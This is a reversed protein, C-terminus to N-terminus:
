IIFAHHRSSNLRKHLGICYYECLKKCLPKRQNENNHENQDKNVRPNMPAKSFEDNILIKLSVVM